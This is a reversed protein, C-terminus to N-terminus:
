NHPIVFAAQGEPLTLTLKGDVLEVTKEGDVSYYTVFDYDEFSVIVEDPESYDNLTTEANMVMYGTRNNTSDKMQTIITPQTVQVDEIDDLKESKVRSFYLPATVDTTTDYTVFAKQYDFNLVVKAMERTYAIVEQVEDYLMKSGDYDLIGGFIGESTSMRFYTFYAINKVGFALAANNQLYLEELDPLRRNNKGFSQVILEVDADYEAATTVNYQLTRYFTTLFGDPLFPYDDYSVRNAGSNELYNRVYTDYSDYSKEGFEEGTYEKHTVSVHYPMLTTKVYLNEDVMKLAQRVQCTATLADWKPEDRTVIGYFAPHDAYPELYERLQNALDEMTAFEGDEGILPTTLGSLRKIRDDAVICKLGVEQALDLYAKMRSTEFDEGNYANEQPYIVDFGCDKFEQFKEKTIYSDYKILEGNVGTFSGESTSRHAYIHLEKTSNSYDPVDKPVKTSTQTDKGCGVVGAALAATLLFILITKWANKKM